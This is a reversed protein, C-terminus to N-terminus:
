WIITLLKYCTHYLTTFAENIKNFHSKIILTKVSYSLKVCLVSKKNIYKIQFLTFSKM